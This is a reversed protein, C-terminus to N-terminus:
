KMLKNNKDFIFTNKNSCKQITAITCKDTIPYNGQNLHVSKKYPDSNDCVYQCLNGNFGEVGLEIHCNYKKLIQKIEDCCWYVNYTQEDTM